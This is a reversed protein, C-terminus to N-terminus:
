RQPAPPLQQLAAQVRERLADYLAREEETLSAVRHHLSLFTKIDDTLTAM